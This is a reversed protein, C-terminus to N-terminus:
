FILSMLLIVKLYIIYYLSCYYKYLKKNKICTLMKVFYIHAVIHIDLYNYFTECFDCDILYEVYRELNESSSEM